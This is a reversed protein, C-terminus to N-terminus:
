NVSTKMVLVWSAQLLSHALVHGTFFSALYLDLQLSRDSAGARLDAAHAQVNGEPADRYGWLNM